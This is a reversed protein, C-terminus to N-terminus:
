TSWPAATPRVTGTWPSAPVASRGSSSSVPTNRGGPAGADLLAALVAAACAPDTEAGMAARHLLSWGYEDVAAADFGADLVARVAALDGDRAAEFADM